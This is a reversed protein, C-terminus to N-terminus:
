AANDGLNSQLVVPEEPALQVQPAGARVLPPSRAHCARVAARADGQPGATQLDIAAGTQRQSREDILRGLFQTPRRARQVIRQARASSGPVFIASWGNYKKAGMPVIRRMFDRERSRRRAVRM